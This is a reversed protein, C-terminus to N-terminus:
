ELRLLGDEIAQDGLKVLAAHLQDQVDDAGVAAGVGAADFAAKEIVSDEDRVEVVVDVVPIVVVAFDGVPVVLPLHLVAFQGAQGAEVFVVRVIAVVDLRGDLQPQIPADIGQANVGDLVHRDPKPLLEVSIDLGM